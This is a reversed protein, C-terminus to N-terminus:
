SGRYTSYGFPNLLLPVHYKRNTDTIKFTVPTRLFFNEVQRTEFYQDVEFILRYVGQEAPCNFAIRGDDNTKNADVAQWSKGDYKELKVEVGPAPMGVSTDLIHTSIM